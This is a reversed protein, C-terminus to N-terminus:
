EQSNSERARKLGLMFPGMRSDVFARNEIVAKLGRELAEVEKEERGDGGGKGKCWEVVMVSKTRGGVTMMEARIPIARVSRIAKTLDRNLGPRDECCVTVKMRKPEGEEGGCYSVTAEDSEGPFPWTEGVETSDVSGPEGSCSSSSEDNRNAVDDAEKRLRKVHHVVEALLSAKDSKTTNPLLSRLSSLHANIRQRRRREAERHSKCAERSKRESKSKEGNIKESDKDLWSEFGYFRRLPPLM